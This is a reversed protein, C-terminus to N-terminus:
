GNKVLPRAEIRGAMAVRSSRCVALESVWSVWHDVVVM